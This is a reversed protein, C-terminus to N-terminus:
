QPFLKPDTILLTMVQQGIISIQLLRNPDKYFFFFFNDFYEFWQFLRETGGQGHSMIAPGWVIALNEANMKTASERFAVERLFLCILKLIKLNNPPLNTLALTLQNKLETPESDTALVCVFLKLKAIIDCILFTLLKMGFVSLFEDYLHSPILSNPQERIYM